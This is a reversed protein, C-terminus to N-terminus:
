PRLILEHREAVPGVGTVLSLGCLISEQLFFEGCWSQVLVVCFVRVRRGMEQSRRDSNCVPKNSPLVSRGHDRSVYSARATETSLWERPM